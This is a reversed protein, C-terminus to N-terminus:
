EKVGLQTMLINIRATQAEIARLLAANQSSHQGVCAAVAELMDRHNTNMLMVLGRLQAELGTTVTPASPVKSKAGVRALHADILPLVSPRDYLEMFGTGYKERHVPVLKNRKFMVTVNSHSM